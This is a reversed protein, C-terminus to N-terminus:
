NLSDRSTVLSGDKGKPILVPKM